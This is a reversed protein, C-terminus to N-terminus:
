RGRRRNRDVGRRTGIVSRQPRIAPRRRGARGLSRPRGVRSGLRASDCATRRWSPADRHAMVNPGLSAGRCAGVSTEHCDSALGSTRCARCCDDISRPHARTEPAPACGILLDSPRIGTGLEDGVALPARSHGDRDLRWRILALIVFEGSGADVDLIDVRVPHGLAADVDCLLRVAAAASGSSAQVSTRYHRSPQESRRYSRTPVTARGSPQRVGRRGCEVVGMSVRSSGLADRRDRAVAPVPRDSSRSPLSRSPRWADM